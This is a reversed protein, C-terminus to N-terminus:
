TMHAAGTAKTFRVLWIGPSSDHNAALWGRLERRSTVMVQQYDDSM